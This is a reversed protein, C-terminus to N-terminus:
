HNMSLHFTQYDNPVSSSNQNGAYFHASRNQQDEIHPLRDFDPLSETGKNQSSKADDYHAIDNTILKPHEYLM